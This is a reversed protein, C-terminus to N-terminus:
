ATKLYINGDEAMYYEAKRTQASLAAHLTQRMPIEEGNNLRDLLGGVEKEIESTDIKKLLNGKYDRVFADLVSFSSLMRKECKDIYSSVDAEVYKIYSSDANQSYYLELLNSFVYLQMSLELSEKIQFAKNVTSILESNDKTKAASDLDNMYFEIDKMAVKKAKQISAITATRQAEHSMISNYNQYAYKVFSIEAMLEAKKDGYLFELIKDLNMRMMKLESHIQTLFYQGSAISMATFCSLLLAQGSVGHLSAHAVIKGNEGMIPTGLGGSRYSMLSNMGSLGEPLKLVYAHAMTESALMAPMQSFLASVKGKQAPTLELKTLGSKADLDFNRDCPALEFNLDKELTRFLEMQESMAKRGGSLIFLAGWYSVCQFLANEWQQWVIKDKVVPILLSLFCKKGLIKGCYLIRYFQTADIIYWVKQLFPLNQQQENVGKIVSNM